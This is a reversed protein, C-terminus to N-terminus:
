LHVHTLKAQFIYLTIKHHDGLNVYQWSGEKDARKRKEQIEDVMLQYNVLLFGENIFITQRGTNCMYAVHLHLTM